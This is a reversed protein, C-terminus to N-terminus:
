AGAGEGRNYVEIVVCSQGIRRMRQCLVESHAQSTTGMQLRFYTRGDRRSPAPVVLAPLRELSPNNRMMAWWAKKAQRPTTFTGVRVLRGSAGDTVRVPWPRDPHENNRVVPQLEVAEKEQPAETEAVRESEASTTPAAVAPLKHERRPVPAAHRPMPAPPAPVPAVNPMPEAQVQPPAPELTRPQPLPVTTTPSSRAGATMPPAHESSRQGLWYSAAAILLIAIAAVWGLPRRAGRTRRPGVDDSLWPLRDAAVVARSDTM